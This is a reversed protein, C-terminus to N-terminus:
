ATRVWIKYTFNTPRADVGGNESTAGTWSRSANFNLTQSTKGGEYREGTYNAKADSTYLASNSAGGTPFWVRDATNTIQGTINMTGRTHSHAYNQPSQGILVNRLNTSTFQSNLTLVNGSVATVVRSENRIIHGASDEAYDLIVTGVSAGHNAITITSGSVATIAKINADFTMANGGEARFFAGGYNIVEWTSITGWLQMPSKQMPYQTYTCGIPYCINFSNGGMPINTVFNDPDDAWMVFNKQDPSLVIKNYIGYKESIMKLINTEIDPDNNEPFWLEDTYHPLKIDTKSTLVTQTITNSGNSYYVKGEIYNTSNRYTFDLKFVNWNDSKAIPENLYVKELVTCDKFCDKANSSGVVSLPVRFKEIKKLKTCGSFAEVLNTITTPVYPITELNICGDFAHSINTVGEPINGVSSMSQCDCFTFYMEQVSSPLSPAESLNNCSRFTASLNTVTNPLSPPTSFNCGFFTYYMSTVGSPITPASSLSCMYFTHDLDTVNPPLAPSTTLSSCLYFAYKVNSVTNPITPIRILSSCEYFANEMNAVGTLVGGVERLSSCGYFANKMSISNSVNSDVYFDVYRLSSCGRFAGEMSTLADLYIIQSNKYSSCGFYTENLNSPHDVECNSVLSSCNYYMRTANFTQSSSSTRRYLICGSKLNTCGYFAETYDDDFSSLIDPAVVLSTCNKFVGVFSYQDGGARDFSIDVYKSPNNRLATAVNPLYDWLLTTVTASQTVRIQYPTDVTNSPQQSLWTSLNTYIVDTRAM